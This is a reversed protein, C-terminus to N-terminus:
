TPRPNAPLLESELDAKLGRREALAQLVLVTDAVPMDELYADRTEFSELVAEIAEVYGVADTGAAVMALADGVAAPFDDRTRIADAHVRADDDNGLILLALAAAYGGISSPSDPVGLNLAWRAEDEAPEGALLRAKMTAIPRGWADPAADAWSAHYADVARDFWGRASARDGRMLHALGAAYAANGRLVEGQANESREQQRRALADWDPVCLLIATSRRNL